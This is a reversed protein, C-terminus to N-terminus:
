FQSEPLHVTIGDIKDTVNIQCSLRSNSQLEMAGELMEQEEESPKPLKDVWEEKVYVHCTACNCNGGCEAIIGDIMNDVAGQMISKGSEIEKHHANGDYEIYTIKAM